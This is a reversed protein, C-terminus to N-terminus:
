YFVDYFICFSLVDITSRCQQTQGNTRNSVREVAEVTFEEAGVTEM